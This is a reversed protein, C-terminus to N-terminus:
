ASCRQRSIFRAAARRALFTASSNVAMFGSLGLNTAPETPGVFLVQEILGSTFLGAYRASVNSSSQEAYQMWISANISPPTSAIRMSVIKSVRFALAAIIAASFDICFVPLFTGKISETVTDSIAPLVKDPCVRSAKRAETCCASM